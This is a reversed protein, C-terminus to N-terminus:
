EPQRNDNILRLGDLILNEDVVDLCGSNEAILLASGGTAVVKPTGGMEKTVRAILGEVLGLYGFVIGARISGTTTNQIVNAPVEISVEPLKSTNRRLANSLTGLGPAILGGLYERETNVADITTATGFSCVICPVGYKAAAASANVLRDTGVSTLPEYNIKLGLDWDNAVFIPEIRFPDRLLATVGVDAEPVVSCVIAKTVKLDPGNSVASRLATSSLATQTPVSFKSVLHEDRFIGFKINSNGIDVALFM